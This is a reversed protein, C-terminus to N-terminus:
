QEEEAMQRQLDEIIRETRIAVGETSLHNDTGSLYRGPYLSEEIDSIVPIILNERLYADLEQRAEWTSDESIAQVNRPAYTFYVSVGRDLFLQYMQNAPDLFVDKPYAWMGYEVPLNYIPIDDQANERYLCYDGYKNYSKEGSLPNGDEDYDAPSLDYSLETMGEKTKLYTYFSSFVKSFMRLDLNSVTDYNAEMMCWFSDDLETTTCFQRKAADFEPSVLLVDGEEAQDLILMLQPMANTYAFVGMNVVEYESFAERICGSDYGFRASSGSFLIMKREQSISLLYDYKDQFTAFYGTSYVPAEVANVHLTTLNACGEFSRDSVEEICDSLWLDTLQDGSVAGSEITRISPPLVLSTCTLDLLSGTEIGTVPVGDIQAPIVLTECDANDGQDSYGTIHIEGSQREVQFLSADTWRAWVAYLDTEEQTLLIRSGLGVGVGSGDAETNWGILTYGSRVFTDTGQLTNARLHTDRVAVIKSTEGEGEETGSIEGGNAHYCIRRDSRTVVAQVSTSYRVNKLVVATVERFSNELIESDEYDVEELLYGEEMAVQFIVDSGRAVTQVPELATIGEMDEFVVHVNLAIGNETGQTERNGCGTLVNMLSLILIFVFSSIAQRILTHM